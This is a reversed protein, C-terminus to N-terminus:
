EWELCLLYAACFINLLWGVTRVATQESLNQEVFRNNLCPVFADQCVTLSTFVFWPWSALTHLLMETPAM